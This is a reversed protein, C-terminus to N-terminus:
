FHIATNTSKGDIELFISNGLIKRTDRLKDIREKKNGPKSLKNQFSTFQKKVFSSFGECWWM